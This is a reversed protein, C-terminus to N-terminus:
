FSESKNCYPEPSQSVHKKWKKLNLCWVAEPATDQPRHAIGHTRPSEAQARTTLSPALGQGRATDM